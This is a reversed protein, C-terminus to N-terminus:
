KPGTGKKNPRWRKDFQELTMEETGKVPTYIEPDTMLKFNEDGDELDEGHWYVVVTREECKLCKKVLRFKYPLSPEQRVAFETGGCKGCKGAPYVEKIMELLDKVKVYSTEVEKRRVMTKM